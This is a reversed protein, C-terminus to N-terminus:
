EKQVIGGVLDYIQAETIRVQVIDGPNAFGDNIYVCGDIDPAQYMSRGELLLDTEKSLGEVLVPVTQGIYKQLIEKSIGAQLALIRQKREQKLEESCQAAFFESRAGEENTYAFVGVHDIRYQKLFGEMQMIDAETEGPFGVMMTTRLAIDPVAMRIRDIFTCLDDYGYRRHMQKLIADSVHQFPIDMYPLIRAESQVIEFLKDTVGSPYLYMLRVWPIDTEKLIRSLLAILNTQSDLDNGYATLDQAILSIEKVGHAELNRLEVIIDSIDRSRLDGRISPIMCYTCRNDCGETIKVSSRFFPTSLTRPLSANMLFRDPCYSKQTQEGGILKQLLNAIEGVGETGVFLDVELLDKSLDALYRQVLCGTVVLYKAPDDEKYCGLALIVEIAEEVAPQIFGCTNVILVDAVAPDETFEWNNEQLIGLMVESDVLNKACGLSVLHFSAM